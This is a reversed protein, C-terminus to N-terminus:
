PVKPQLGPVKCDTLSPPTVDHSLVMEKGVFYTHFDAVVLNFVDAKEPLDEASMQVTGVATHAPSPGELQNLRRWGRSSIWFNHGSSALFSSEGVTVKMLAINKRCTTRLVPKYMLEGTEVNKSLVRDGPQIKEIPAFGQDTWIPTDAVLCSCPYYVWYPRTTQHEEYDWDVPKEYAWDVNTLQDWFTWWKRPDASNPEGTVAALITGARQNLIEARDNLAEATTITQYIIDSAARIDDPFDNPRLQAFTPQNGVIRLPRDDILHVASAQIANRDERMLVFRLEIRGAPQGVGAETTKVDVKYQSTVPMHMLTLVMPVYDELPRSRLRKVASTRVSEWPSFLALRALSQSARYSEWDSLIAVVALAASESQSALFQELVPLTQTTALSRLDKLGAARQKPTGEFRVVLQELRLQLKQWAKMASKYESVAAQIEADMLWQGGVPQYGLRKLIKDPAPANGTILGQTLHVREQDTLGADRCRDALKLQEAVTPSAASRWIRYKQLLADDTRTSVEFPVWDDGVQVYGSQWWTEAAAKSDRSSKLSERRDTVTVASTAEAALVATVNDQASVPQKKEAAPLVAAVMLLFSCSCLGQTM